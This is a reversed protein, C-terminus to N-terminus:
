RSNVHVQINQPSSPPTSYESINQIINNITNANGDVVPKDPHATIAQGNGTVVTTPSPVRRVEAYNKCLDPVMAEVSRGIEDKFNSLVCKVIGIVKGEILEGSTSFQQLRNDFNQLQPKLREIVLDAIYGADNSQPVLVPKKPKKSKSSVSSAERLRDVESRSVGGIFHSATFQYNLNILDVMNEVTEDHEEDSWVLTSEDIPREPDELLLNHM